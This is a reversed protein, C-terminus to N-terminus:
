TAAAEGADHGADHLRDLTMGAMLESLMEIDAGRAQVIGMIQGEYMVAIRDSLAILEELDESILLIAAGRERQARLVDHITEAAGVDVGRTPHVAVIVNPEGALERAILLKQQNGGSLDRVSTSRAPTKVDYNEVLRDTFRAIASPVLFPGRSIPPRRYSRVIANTSVDLSGVLGTGLRDEPVHAVGARAVERPHHNTLDAGQVSM